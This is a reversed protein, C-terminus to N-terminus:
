VKTWDRGISPVTEFGYGMISKDARAPAPCLPRVPVNRAHATRRYRLCFQRQRPHDLRGTANGREPQHNRLRGRSYARCEAYRDKKCGGIASSQLRGRGYLNRATDTCGQLRFVSPHVGCGMDLLQREKRERDIDYESLLQRKNRQVVYRRKSGIGKT